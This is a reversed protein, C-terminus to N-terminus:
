LRENKLDFKKFDFDEVQVESIDKDKLEDAIYKDM